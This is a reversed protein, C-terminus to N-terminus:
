NIEKTYAKEFVPRIKNWIIGSYDKKNKMAFLIAPYNCTKFYDATDKDTALEKYELKAKQEIEKFQNWLTTETKKVWDFFEDPVGEILKKLTGEEKLATWITLSSNQTVIKHLAVYQEFKIKVRFGNSYEIVFGEKNHWNLKKLDEIHQFDYSKAIPFGIDKLVQHKGTEIDIIALLVLEESKGYDVIIRNEPYIIEFVYTKTKDLNVIAKAYKENLLVNAKVSQKSTFSGRTAIYPKDELWYLVGLSGDMKEFIKFPLKPLNEYGVEEINFFKVIPNAVIKYNEDLILGRCQLTEKTWYKDYQAAQTYNYIWLNASPHKMKHIYGLAIAEELKEINLISTKMKKKIVSCINFM